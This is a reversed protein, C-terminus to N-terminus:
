DSGEAIVSYWNPSGCGGCIYEPEPPPLKVVVVMAILIAIFFGLTFFFLNARM